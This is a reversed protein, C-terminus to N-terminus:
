VLKRIGDSDCWWLCVILVMGLLVDNDDDDDDDDDDDGNVGYRNGEGDVDHDNCDNEKEDSENLTLLTTM